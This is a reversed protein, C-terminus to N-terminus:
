LVAKRGAARLYHQRSQVQGSQRLRGEADQGIENQVVRESRTQQLTQQRIPREGGASNVPYRRGPPRSWFPNFDEGIKEDILESLPHFVSSFRRV